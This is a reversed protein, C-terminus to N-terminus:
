TCKLQRRLYESVHEIRLCLLSKTKTDWRRLLGTVVACEPSWDKGQSVMEMYRTNWVLSGSFGSPDDIRVNNRVLDSSAPTFKTELPNWFLEFVKNDGTNQKEQTCYGTGNAHYEGFVYKANEGSFGHFFILEEKCYPAHKDAFRNSPIASAEHETASWAQNSIKTYAIDVPHKEEKWDGDHRYVEKAGYFTYSLPKETVVHECTLLIHQNDINVFSGCGSLKAEKETEKFLFTNFQRSYQLMADTVGSITKKWEQVQQSM